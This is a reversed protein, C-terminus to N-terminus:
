KEDTKETRNRRFGIYKGSRVRADQYPEHEDIFWDRGIKRATRFTGRAAKQYVVQPNKGLREAYEKLPIMSM